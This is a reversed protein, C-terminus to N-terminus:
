SGFFDAWAEQTAAEQEAIVIMEPKGQAHLVDEWPILTPTGEHYHQQWEQFKHTENSLEFNGLQRYRETVELLKSIERKSLKERGPKQKLSIKYGQRQVFESWDDSHVTRGLITEYLRSLVPGNKMAVARDGTLTRGTEALLERDALYLLKLLRMYEMRNDDADLLVCAAQLTKTFDFHLHM